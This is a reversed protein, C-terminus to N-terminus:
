EEGLDIMILTINDSGDNEKALAVLKDVKEEVSLSPDLAIDSCDWEEVAGSFGDSCLLIKTEAIEESSLPFTDVDPTYLVEDLGIAKTILNRKKSRKSEELTIKGLDLLHQVYSHDKSVQLIDRTDVTYLRSDGVNAWSILKGGDRIMAAVLTTGMGKHADIENQKDLVRNNAILAANNFIYEVESDSLELMGDRVHTKCLRTVVEFFTDITLRSAIDGCDLGGMGDCVAALLANDAIQKIAFADENVTRIKGVDSKGYFKM